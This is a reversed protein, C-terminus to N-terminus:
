GSMDCVMLSVYSTEDSDSIYEMGGENKTNDIENTEDSLNAQHLQDHLYRDRICM